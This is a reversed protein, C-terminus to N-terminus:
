SFNDSYESSAADEDGNHKCVLLWYYPKSRRISREDLFGKLKEIEDVLDAEAEGYQRLGIRAMARLTAPSFVGFDLSGYQHGEKFFTDLDRVAETYQGGHYYAKARVYLAWENDTAAGIVESLERIAKAFIKPDPDNTPLDRMEQMADSFSSQAEEILKESDKKNSQGSSEM